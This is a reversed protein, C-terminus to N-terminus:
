AWFWGLKGFNQELHPARRALPGSRINISAQVARCLIALSSLGPQRQVRKLVLETDDGREDHVLGIGSGLATLCPQDPLGTVLEPEFGPPRTTM